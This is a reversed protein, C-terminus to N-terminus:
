SHNKQNREWFLFILREGLSGGSNKTNIIWFVFSCFLALGAVVTFRKLGVFGADLGGFSQAQKVTQSAIFPLLFAALVGGFDVVRSLQILWGPPPINKTPTERRKPNPMSNKFLPSAELEIKGKQKNDPKFNQMATLPNLRAHKFESTDELRLSKAQRAGADGSFHLHKVVEPTNKEAPITIETDGVKINDQIYLLSKQIRIGNVITGNKSAMDEIWFKGADVYFKCHWRSCNSDPVQVHVGDGRGLTVHMNGVEFLIDKGPAKAKLIVKM